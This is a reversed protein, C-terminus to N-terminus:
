QMNRRKLFISEIKGSIILAERNMHSLELGCGCVNLIGFKVKVSIYERSYELVGLHNEILVRKDGLIEIVSQGPFPEGNLDVTEMFRDLMGKKRDM